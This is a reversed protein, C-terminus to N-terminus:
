LTAIIRNVHTKVTAPSLHLAECSESNSLGASICGFAEREHPSLEDPPGARDAAAVWENTAPDGGGAHQDM